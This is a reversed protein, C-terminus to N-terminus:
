SVAYPMVELRAKAAIRGAEHRDLFEGLYTLKGNLRYYAVWKEKKKNWSVGRYGSINGTRPGKRNQQNEANTVMRLNSKRNDLENHNIHDIMVGKGPTMIYRHFILTSAKGNQRKTNGAVYYSKTHPCWRAFWKYPFEQVKSLDDTDILAELSEGNRGSLFIVTVDGRIEFENVM